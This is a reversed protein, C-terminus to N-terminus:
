QRAAALRARFFLVSCWDMETKRTHLITLAPSVTYKLMWFTVAGSIKQQLHQRKPKGATEAFVIATADGYKQHVNWAKM